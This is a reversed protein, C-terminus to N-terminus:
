EKRTENKRMGERRFQQIIEGSLLIFYRNRIGFLLHGFAENDVVIKIKWDYFFFVCVCVSSITVHGHNRQTSIIPVKM